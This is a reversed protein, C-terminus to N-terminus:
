GVIFFKPLCTFIYIKAFLFNITYLTNFHSSVLQDSHFKVWRLILLPKLSLKEGGAGKERHKSINFHFVSVIQISKWTSFNILVLRKRCLNWKWGLLGRSILATAYFNKIMEACSCQQLQQAIRIQKLSLNWLLRYISNYSDNYSYRRGDLLLRTAGPCHGGLKLSAAQTFPCWVLSVRSGRGLLLPLHGTWWGTSFFHARCCTGWMLETHLHSPPLCTAARALCRQGKRKRKGKHPTPLWRSPHSAWPDGAMSVSQQTPDKCHCVPLLCSSQLWSSSNTFPYLPSSHGPM